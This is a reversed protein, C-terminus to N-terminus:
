QREAIFPKLSWASASNPISSSTRAPTPKASVVSPQKLLWAMTQKQAEAFPETKILKRSFNNVQQQSKKADLSRKASVGGIIEVLIPHSVFRVSDDRYDAEITFSLCAPPPEKLTVLASYIGHAKSSTAKSGKDQLVAAPTERGEGTLRLLRIERPRVSPIWFWTPPLSFM